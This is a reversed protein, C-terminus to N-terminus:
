LNFYLLKLRWNQIVLYYYFLTNKRFYKKPLYLYNTKKESICLFYFLIVESLICEALINSSYVELLVVYTNLEM